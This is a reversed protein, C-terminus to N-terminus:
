VPKLRGPGNSPVCQIVLATVNTPSQALAFLNTVRVIQGGCSQCVLNDAESLDAKERAWGTSLEETKGMLLLGFARSASSLKSPAISRSSFITSCISDPLSGSSSRM